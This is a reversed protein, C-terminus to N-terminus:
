PKKEAQRKYWTARSMGLAVWPKKATITETRDEIRPRGQKARIPLPELAARGPPITPHNAGGVPSRVERREIRAERLARLQDLKSPPKPPKGM